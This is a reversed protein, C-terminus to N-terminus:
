HYQGLKLGSKCLTFNNLTVQIVHAYMSGSTTVVGVDDTTGVIDVGDTGVGDTAGVVGVGDITGPM